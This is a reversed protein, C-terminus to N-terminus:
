AHWGGRAAYRVVDYSAARREIGVRGSLLLRNLAAGVARPPEDLTVAIRRETLPGFRELAELTLETTTQRTLETSVM